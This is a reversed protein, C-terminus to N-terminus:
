RSSLGSDRRGCRRRLAVLGALGAGALAISGPEPVGSQSADSCISVNDVICSSNVTYGEPLTFVPGTPAFELTNLFDVTYIRTQVSDISTRVEWGLDLELSVKILTNTPVTVVNSEVLQSVIASQSQEQITTTSRTNDVTSIVQAFAPCDVACNNATFGGELFMNLQMDVTPTPGSVIMFDTYTAHIVAEVYPNRNVADIGNMELVGSGGVRGAVSVATENYFFNGIGPTPIPFSSDLHAFQTGTNQDQLQLLNFNDTLYVFTQSSFSEFPGAKLGPVILVAFCLTLKRLV